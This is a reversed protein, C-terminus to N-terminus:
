PTKKEKAIESGWSRARSNRYWDWKWRDAEPLIHWPPSLNHKKSLEQITEPYYPWRGEYHQLDARDKTDLKPILQKTVFEKMPPELSHQYSAWFEHAFPQSGKKTGIEVVKGVFEPRGEFKKLEQGMKKKGSKKDPPALRTQIPTPLQTFHVPLDAKNAPPLASPRKSAIAVLAQPYDPWKNEAAELQKKEADSLYPMLYDTVYDRV